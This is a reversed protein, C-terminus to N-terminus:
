MIQATTIDVTIHRRQEFFVYFDYELSNPASGKDITGSIEYSTKSGIDSVAVRSLDFVYYHYVNAFDKLSISGNSSETGNVDHMEQLFQEYGYTLPQTYLPRGSVNLRLNNINIPSTNLGHTCSMLGNVKVGLSQKGNSAGSLVPVVILREIDRTSSALNLSFYDKVNMFQSHILEKYNVTRVPNSLIQSDLSESLSYSSMVWRPRTMDHQEAGIKGLKLEYTFDNTANANNPEGAETYEKFFDSPTSARFFPCFENAMNHSKTIISAPTVTVKYDTIQNLRIKLQMYPGSVLPLQECFSSMDGLRVVCYHHYYWILDSGTQKELRPEGYKKMSDEGLVATKHADEYNLNSSVGQNYVYGKGLDEKKGLFNIKDQRLGGETDYYWADGTMKHYTKLGSNFEDKKASGTTHDIFSKYVSLNNIPEQCQHNSLEVDINHIASMDSKMIMSHRAQELTIPETTTLKGLMPLVIYSNKIDVVHNSNSIAQLQFTCINNTYVDNIDETFIMNKSLMEPTHLQSSQLVQQAIIDDKTFKAHVIETM